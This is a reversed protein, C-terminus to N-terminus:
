NGDGLVLLWIAPSFELDEFVINRNVSDIDGACDEPAVILELTNDEWQIDALESGPAVTAGADIGDKWIISLVGLPRKKFADPIVSLQRTNPDFSVPKWDDDPM